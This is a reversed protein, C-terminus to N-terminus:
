IANIVVTRRQLLHEILPTIARKYTAPIQDNDKERSIHEIMYSLTQVIHLRTQLLALARAEADHPQKKKSM